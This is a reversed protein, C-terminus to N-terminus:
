DIRSCAPVKESEILSQLSGHRVRDALFGGHLPLLIEYATVERPEGPGSLRALRDDVGEHGSVERLQEAREPDGRDQGLDVGQLRPHALARGLENGPGLLGA